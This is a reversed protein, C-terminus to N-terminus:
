PAVALPSPVDEPWYPQPQVDSAINPRAFEGWTARAAEDYARAAEEPSDFRGLNIQKGSSKMYAEWRNGRRRVGRFGSASGDGYRAAAINQAMTCPRLNQRRNNLGDDDHHDVMGDYGMMSAVVRHMRICRRSVGEGKQSNRVAYWIGRGGPSRWASWKWQMLFDYDEDDVLAVKGQSLPIEKM